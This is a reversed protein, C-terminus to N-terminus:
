YKGKKSLRRIQRSRRRRRIHGLVAKKAEGPTSNLIEEEENFIERNFQAIDYNKLLADFNVNYDETKKHVQSLRDLFKRDIGRLGKLDNKLKRLGKRERHEEEIIPMKAVQLSIREQFLGRIGNFFELLSLTIKGWEM